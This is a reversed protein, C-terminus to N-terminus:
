VGTRVAAEITEEAVKPVDIAVFHSEPYLYDEGTEDIVRVFGDKEAEPDPLVRYVKRLDLSEPHDHNDVCVAFHKKTGKSRGLRAKTGRSESSIM